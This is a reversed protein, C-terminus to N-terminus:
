SMANMVNKDFICRQDCVDVWQNSRKNKKKRFLFSNDYGLAMRSKAIFGTFTSAPNGIFVTALVAATMDGGVWSAEDPILHINPGIDPDALLRELIEPRQHDTIFLIPHRLMGLPELIARVYDPEMNLAAVPDCNTNQAIRGLFLLGVEGELSRSHIVSYAMSQKESGFVADLVSCMDRVPQNWINFGVGKNYSRWLTRILHSQFEIYEDLDPRNPQYRFIDWTDMKIRNRYQDLEEDENYMKVCFAEEMFESWGFIMHDHIAMWMDPILRTVWSGQKIAVLLGHDEGYQLSHLFEILNNGTRGRANPEDLVLVTIEGPPKNNSALRCKSRYKQLIDADAEHPISARRDCIALPEMTMMTTAALLLTPNDEETPIIIINNNNNRSDDKSFVSRPDIPLSSLLM